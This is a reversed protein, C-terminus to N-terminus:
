RLYELNLKFCGTKNKAMRRVRRGGKLKNNRIRILQIVTHATISCIAYLRNNAPKDTLLQVILTWCFEYLFRKITTSTTINFQFRDRKCYKRNLLLLHLLAAQSALKAFRCMVVVVAVPCSHYHLPSSTSSETLTPTGTGLFHLLQM